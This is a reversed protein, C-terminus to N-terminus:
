QLPFTEKSANIQHKVQGSVGVLCLVQDQPHMKVELNSQVISTCGSRQLRAPLIEQSYLNYGVLADM